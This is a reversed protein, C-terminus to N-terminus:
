PQGGPQKVSTATEAQLRRVADELSLLAQEGSSMNRLTVAGQAQEEEGFIAAWEAGARNAARMQARLSSAEYDM